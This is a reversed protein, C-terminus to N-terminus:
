GVINRDFDFSYNLHSVSCDPMTPYLVTRPSIQNKGLARDKAGSLILKNPDGPTAELGSKPRMASPSYRTLASGYLLARMRTM